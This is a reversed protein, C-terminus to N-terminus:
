DFTLVAFVVATLSALLALRGITPIRAAAAQDGNRAKRMLTQIYGVLLTLIVVATLKVHFQWPFAGFGGWKTYVLAPGTTWLLALGIEGIRSMLPPFRDLVAKEPPAAKAVLRQMVINSFPVALGMAMGLLHLILLIQNWDIM